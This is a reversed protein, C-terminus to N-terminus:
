VLWSLKTYRKSLQKAAHSEIFESSEGRNEFRFAIENLVTLKLGHPINAATYGANYVVTLFENAPEELYGGKFTWDVSNVVTGDKQTVSTLVGNVPGYPLKYFGASNNIVATITKVILSLGTCKEVAERSQKIMATLEADFDAAVIRLHTKAESLTVPEGGTEVFSIDILANYVSYPAYPWRDENRRYNM